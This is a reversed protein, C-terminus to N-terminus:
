GEGDMLTPHISVTRGLETWGSYPNNTRLQAAAARSRQSMGKEDKAKRGDRFVAELGQARPNAWAASVGRFGNCFQEAAAGTLGRDVAVEEAVKATGLALLWEEYKARDAQDQKEYARALPALLDAVAESQTMESVPKGAPKAMSVTWMGPRPTNSLVCQADDNADLYAVAADYNDFERM